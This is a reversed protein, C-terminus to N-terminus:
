LCILNHYFLISDKIKGLVCKPSLTPLTVAPQPETAPTLSGLCGILGFRLAIRKEWTQPQIMVM